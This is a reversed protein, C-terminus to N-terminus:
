QQTTYALSPMGLALGRAGVGGLLGIAPTQPLLGNTFYNQGARSNLLAQIPVSGVGAAGPILRLPNDMVQQYFQRQATGSDPVQDQVFAKGIRALDGLERNGQGYKFRPDITNLANALKAPSVNGVVADPTTPASAKELM